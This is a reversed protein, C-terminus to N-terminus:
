KKLGTYSSRPLADPFHDTLKNSKIRCTEMNFNFDNLNVSHSGLMQSVPQTLQVRSGVITDNLLPRRLVGHLRKNLSAYSSGPLPQNSVTVPRSPASKLLDSRYSGMIPEFYSDRLSQDATKRYSPSIELLGKLLNLGRRSLRASFREELSQVKAGLPHVPMPHGALRPNSTFLELQNQSFPGVVQFILYLQDLDSEGPLLPQGDILEGMLCGIAFMDVEPGYNLSGLLLEPSRYWRTAVYDTLIQGEPVTITRAFGFDCLKVTLRRPNVLVNEPKIDRHIVDHRHCHDIAKLIQFIIQRVLDSDLGQPYNESLFELLNREVFEFVLYLREKRRFAEKLLVINEHRLMRLVKVERLTSKRLSEDDDVDKFKKIAVIDGTDTNRCKLVIGYHGQGVSGLMEYKNMSFINKQTNRSTSL